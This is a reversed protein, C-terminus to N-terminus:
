DLVGGRGSGRVAPLSHRSSTPGLVGSATPGRRTLGYAYAYRM